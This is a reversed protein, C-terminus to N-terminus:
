GVRKVRFHFVAPSADVGGTSNRAMVKFVHPGVAFTRSLREGCVRFSSRDLECLFTVDTQDSVFRFSARARALRTRVVKGPHRLFRTAPPPPVSIPATGESRPTPSLPNESGWDGAAPVAESSSDPPLCPGPPEVPIEGRLGEGAAVADLLGGGVACPGFLGVTADTGTLAARIEAPTPTPEIGEMLAAVGAAHPAAASTGCFRWTVGNYRHAFFTTAGCDTATLDPKSITEPTPLDSAPGPGEVPGFYHTVPGRSSYEEPESNDFFPAAAVALASAAGAHGFVTPGVVDGGGSRPYETASVGSGNEMLAFKLRPSGGSFRSVALQMTKESASENTWQVIEGPEQTSLNDETSRTVLEGNANLLFADLDTGVGGWPEAWQLDVSLAAGPEVKIGFTRDTAAGPNFDLCSKGSLGPLSNVASPCGGSDRFEPAEWSAIEDGEPDFLNDNGAASFYLAGAETVRNVAAAVPGDQFFPEELYAVDDVIIQAGAGGEGVPKALKEINEAFAKEGAFATAFALSAQPAVDHVIQLMARGEDTATSSAFDEIVNAATAQGACENEAGPLDASVIDAAAKTAIPGSEDAAETAEDYSDSLVGVTVGAGAVGFQERALNARLQTVGESSVSGGECNAAYLIPARIPTVSVVRSKAAVAKLDGPQVAVTAAQYRRSATLVRGGAARLEDQGAIAGHDFRVEVLVRGGQRVLSGPGSQAVGLLKAQKSPPQSWVSPKSLEALRASLTGDGVPAAAATPALACGSLLGFLAWVSALRARSLHASNM